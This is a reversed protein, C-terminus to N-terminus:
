NTTFPAARWGAVCRPKPSTLLSTGIASMAFLRLWVGAGLLCSRRSMRRKCRPLSMARCKTSSGPASGSKVCRKQQHLVVSPRNELRLRGGKRRSTSSAHRSSQQSSQVTEIIRGGLGSKALSVARASSDMSGPHTRAAGFRWCAACRLTRRQSRGTSVKGTALGFDLSSPATRRVGLVNSSRPTTCHELWRSRHWSEKPRGRQMLGLLWEVNQQHDALELPSQRYLKGTLAFFRRRDFIGIQARKGAGDTGGDPLYFNRGKGPLVAHCLVHLGSGSQSYARYTNEFRAIVEAAWPQPDGSLDFCADLDIGCAPDDESFFHGVGTYTGPQRVSVDCVTAYASWTTPDKALRRGGTQDYPVKTPRGNKDPEIKWLCWQDRQILEVPFRPDTNMKAAM